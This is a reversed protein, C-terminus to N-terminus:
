MLLTKEAGGIIPDFNARYAMNPDKTEADIMFFSTLPDGRMAYNYMATLEEPKMDMAFEGTIRSLDKSNKMKKLIVYNSNKRIKKPVDFYGQTLFFMTVGMKRGRVWYPDLLKLSKPDETILDDCILLTNEKRNIDKDLNPLDKGDSIALMIQTKYKKEVARCKQILDKYLPEDLDKAWLIIKDWVGILDIFNRLLCTKGSGSPACFLARFPLPMNLLHENPYSRDVKDEKKEKITEYYNKIQVSM